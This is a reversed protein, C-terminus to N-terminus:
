EKKKEISFSKREPLMKELIYLINEYELICTYKDISEDLSEFFRSRNM